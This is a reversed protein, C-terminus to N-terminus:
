AYAGSQIMALANSVIGQGEMTDMLDAPRTGGLAPLPETLWRAMWARADFGAPDGSDEIMAELQGVLRAFGVVRESEEPSLMDGRKAKKNVTATSLNLARFGAGQGIPLAAFLRKAESARIGQRIMGIRELPTARYVSICYQPTGEGGTLALIAPGTKATRDDLDKLTVKLRRSAPRDATVIPPESTSSASHAM